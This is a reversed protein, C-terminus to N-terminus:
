GCFEETPGTGAGIQIEGVIDAGAGSQDGDGILWIKQSGSALTLYDVNLYSTDSSSTFRATPYASRVSEFTSNGGVGSSLRPSLADQSVFLGSVTGSADLIVAVKKGLGSTALAWVNCGEAWQAAPGPDPVIQWIDALSMGVKIPGVHGFGVKWASIESPGTTGAGCLSLTIRIIKAAADVSNAVYMLYCTDSGPSTPFSQFGGSSDSSNTGVGYIASATAITDGVNIGDATALKRKPIIGILRDHSFLLTGQEYSAYQVQAVVKGLTFGTVAARADALSMGIQLQDIGRSNLTGATSVPDTLARLRAALQTANAADVFEGGGAQAICALDEQAQEDADVAFGVTQITFGPHNARIQTAIDCASPPSCTDVGDTVLVILGTAADGLQSAADTLAPGLPTFGSQTIGNVAATFAPKDIPGVPLLRRIDTCGAARDSDKNSTSTGFVTLGVTAKDGFGQVLTTAAARAADMRSGGGPVDRIMSGSADLILVTPVYRAAVTPAVAAADSARATPKSTRPTSLTSVASVVQPVVVVGTATLVAVALVAAVAIRAALPVGLIFALPALRTGAATAVVASPTAVPTTPPTVVQQQPAPQTAIWERLGDYIAPNAAIVARLTPVQAALVALEAPSTAPNAARQALVEDRRRLADGVARDGLSGLWELLGAYAVANLAAAVRAEPHDRALEALREPTVSPDAAEAAPSTM